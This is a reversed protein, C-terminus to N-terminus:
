LARKIQPLDRTFPRFGVSHYMNRAAAHAPAGLCAVLMRKALETPGLNHM